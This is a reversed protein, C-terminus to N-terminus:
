CRTVDLGTNNLKIARNLKKNPKRFGSVKTYSAAKDIFRNERFIAAQFSRRKTIDELNINVIRMTVLLTPIKQKYMIIGYTTKLM